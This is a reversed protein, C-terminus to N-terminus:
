GGGVGGLEILTVLVGFVAAMELSILVATSLVFTFFLLGILPYQAPLSFLLITLGFFLFMGPLLCAATKRQVQM